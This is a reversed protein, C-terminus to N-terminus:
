GLGRGTVLVPDGERFRAVTSALVHGAVDIGGVLPFSRLIKGKGTGALADTYNVSSHVARIVVDGPSRQDLTVAEIGARYGGEDNHIRFAAFTVPIPMPQARSRPGAM